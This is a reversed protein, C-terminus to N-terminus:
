SSRLHQSHSLSQSVREGLTRAVLPGPWAQCPPEWPARRSPHHKRHGSEAWGPLLRRQSPLHGARRPIQHSRHTQLEQPEVLGAAEAALSRPTRLRYDPHSDPSAAPLDSHLAQMQVLVLLDSPLLNLLSRALGLCAETQIKTTHDLM